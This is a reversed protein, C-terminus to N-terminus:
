HFWIIVFVGLLTLGFVVESMWKSKIKTFFVSCIISLPIALTITLEYGISPNILFLAILYIVFWFFLNHYKRIFIKKGGEPRVVYFIAILVIIGVVVLAIQSYFSFSIGLKPQFLITALKEYVGDLRDTLFLIALYFTFPTFLGLISSFWERWNFTRLLFLTLWVIIIITYINPYFLAGLGLFFGSEFYRKFHNKSKDILFARELALLIFFNGVLLPYFVQYSSLTSAFVVFLVSPLYTKNDIFIYKFNLQLLIYSEVIVLILAFITPFKPHFSLLGMLWNFVFTTNGLNQVDVNDSLNFLSPIWLVIGVLPILFIVIPHNSKFLKLLM